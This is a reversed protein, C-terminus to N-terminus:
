SEADRGLGSLRMSHTRLAYSHQGLLGAHGEVKGALADVRTELMGVSLAVERLAAFSALHKAVTHIEDRLEAMEADFRDEALRRGNDREALLTLVGVALARTWSDIPASESLTHALKRLEVYDIGSASM